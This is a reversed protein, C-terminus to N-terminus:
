GETTPDLVRGMFLIVGTEKDRILYIFPRNAIFSPEDGASSEAFIVATAAAAETGKEDVSIFAKHLVDTIFLNRQGNIGSFDAPGFADVMGLKKLFPVISISPTKFTFKPLKVPPLDTSDLTQILKHISDITISQEFSDFAGEDPLLITMSIREGRYPLDLLRVDDAQAYRLKIKEGYDGLRMLPSEVTSNDLKTFPEDETNDPNFQLLWDGLFYIANTLVLRVSSNIAGQPILDKIKENTQEEVWTNITIRSPEPENKFDLLNVGAGYYSSLFDLYDLRFFFDGQAWSSNVINLTLGETGEAHGMLNQDMANIAAHLLDGELTASLAQRIQTSTVGRAGVEAMALAATISYPSFFVNDNDEVLQKYMDLAFKNISAAQESMVAAGIPEGIRPAASKAVSFSINDLPKDVGKTTSSNNLCGSLSLLAMALIM